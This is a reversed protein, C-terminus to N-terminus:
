ESVPEASTEVPGQALLETVQTVAAQLSRAAMQFNTHSSIEPQIELFTNTNRKLRALKKRAMRLYDDASGSQLAPGLALMYDYLERHVEALEDDEAAEESHKLFTRVMWIHSLLTDIRLMLAHSDAM